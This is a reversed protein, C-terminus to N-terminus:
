TESLIEANQREEAARVLSSTSCSICRQENGLEVSDKSSGFNPLSEVFPFFNPNKANFLRYQERVETLLLYILPFSSVLFFFNVNNLLIDGILFIPTQCLFLVHQSPVVDGLGVLSVTSFVFYFSKLFSWRETVQFTILFGVPDISLSGTLVKFLLCVLCTLETLGVRFMTM